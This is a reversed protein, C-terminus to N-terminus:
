PKALIYREKILKILQAAATDLGPELQRGRLKEAVLERAKNAIIEAQLEPNM